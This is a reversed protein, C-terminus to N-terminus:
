SKNYYIVKREKLYALLIVSFSCSPISVQTACIIMGLFGEMLKTKEHKDDLTSDFEEMLQKNKMIRKGKSVYRSWTNWSLNAHTIEEFYRMILTDIIYYLAKCQAAGKKKELNM